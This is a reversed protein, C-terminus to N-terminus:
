IKILHCFQKFKELSFHEEYKYQVNQISQNNNVKYVNLIM